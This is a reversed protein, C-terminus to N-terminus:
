NKLKRTAGLALAGIGLLAATAGGDPVRGGSTPVGDVTIGTGSFVSWGSLGHPQSDGFVNGEPDPLTLGLGNLFIVVAGGNENNGNGYKALVFQYGAPVDTGTGSSVYTATGAYDTLGTHYTHSGIPPGSDITQQLGGGVIDLLNQVYATEATPSAPSSDIVTGVVNPDSLSLAFSSGSLLPLVAAIKWLSKVPLNKM